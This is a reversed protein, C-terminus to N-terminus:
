HAPLAALRGDGSLLLAADPGRQLRDLWGQSELRRLVRGAGRAMARHEVHLFREAQDGARFRWVHRGGERREATRVQTWRGRAQSRLGDGMEQAVRTIRERRTERSDM